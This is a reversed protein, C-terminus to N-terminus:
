LMAAVGVVIQLYSTAKNVQAVLIEAELSQWHPFPKEPKSLETNLNAEVLRHLFSLQKGAIQLEKLNWLDLSSSSKNLLQAAEARLDKDFKSTHPLVLDLDSIDKAPSSPIVLQM